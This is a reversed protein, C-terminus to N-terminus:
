ATPGPGQRWLSTKGSPRGLSRGKQWGEGLGASLPWKGWGLRDYCGLWLCSGSSGTWALMELSPLSAGERGRMAEGVERGGVAGLTVPGVEARGAEGPVGQGVGM